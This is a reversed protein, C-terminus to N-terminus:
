VTHFSIHKTSKYSRLNFYRFRFLELSIQNGKEKLKEEYVEKSLKSRKFLTFNYPQFGHDIWTDIRFPPIFENFEKMAIDFNRISQTLSHYVLEHGDERWKEIEESHDQYSANDDRKSYHNLFFGKTTTINYKEFFERQLVLNELTDFDCHDTFCTIASFHQKSRSVEIANISSILLSIKTIYPFIYDAGSIEKLSQKDYNVIPTAFNPNLKWILEYPNEDNIEWIGINFNPQVYYNNELLIVKPCYPNFFYKGNHAKWAYDHNRYKIIKKKFIIKIIFNNNTSLLDGLEIKMSSKSELEIKKLSNQERKDTIWISDIM